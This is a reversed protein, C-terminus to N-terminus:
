SNMTPTPRAFERAEQLLGALHKEPDEVRESLTNFLIRSKSDAVGCYSAIGTNLHLSIANDLGDNVFSREDAGAFAIWRIRDFPLRRDKGYALGYNWVRDIYGKLVAPMSYWWLPFIVVAHSHDNLQGFRESVERSYAKDLDSWDPEDEISLVPNFGSRYLDLETVHGGDRTIDEKILAAAAATLSDKRPHAWLLFTSTNM